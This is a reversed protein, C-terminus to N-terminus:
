GSSPSARSRAQEGAPHTGSCALEGPARVGVRVTRRAKPVARRDTAVALSRRAPSSTGRAERRISRLIRTVTRPQQAIDRAWWPMSSKLSGISTTTVIGEVRRALDADLTVFVGTHGVQSQYWCWKPDGGEEFLEALDAFRKPTLPQVDLPYRPV